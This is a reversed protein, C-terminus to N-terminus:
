GMVDNILIARLQTDNQIGPAPRAPQRGAAASGIPLDEGHTSSATGVLTPVWWPLAIGALPRCQRHAAILVERQALDLL